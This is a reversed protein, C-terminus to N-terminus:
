GSLIRKWSNQSHFDRSLSKPHQWRPVPKTRACAGSAAPGPQPWAGPTTRNTHRWWTAASRGPRSAWRTPWPAAWRRRPPADGSWAAWPGRPRRGPQRRRRRWPRWAVGGRRERRVRHNAEIRRGIVHIFSSLVLYFSSLFFYCRFFFPVLEYFGMSCLLFRFIQLFNSFVRHFLTFDLFDLYFSLSTTM